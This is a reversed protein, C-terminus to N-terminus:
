ANRTEANFGVYLSSRLINLWIFKLGGYYQINKETDVIDQFQANLPLRERSLVFKANCFWYQKIIVSSYKFKRVNKTNVDVTSLYIEATNGTTQLKNHMTYNTKVFGSASKRKPLICFTCKEFALPCGFHM